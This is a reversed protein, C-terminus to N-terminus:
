SASRQVPLKKVHALLLMLAAPTIGELRGAQALTTPRARELRQKVESSLGCIRTYDIDRPLRTAEERRLVSVDADQQDVYAAYRADVELQAIAWSPLAGLAPWIAALQSLTVGPYALLEFGSRRRGDQNVDLGHRAAETPTLNL